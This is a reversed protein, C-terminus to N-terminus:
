AALSFSQEGDAGAQPHGYRSKDADIGKKARCKSVSCREAASGIRQECGDEDAALDKPEAVKRREKDDAGDRM